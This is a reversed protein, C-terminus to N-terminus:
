RQEVFTEHTVQKGDLYFTTAGMLDTRFTKVRANQLRELVEPKPHGFPSRFGVSIVAYNPSTAQLLEATTSTASGHHGVKLLDVRPVGAEVLSREIKREADGALLVTDSGYSVLMVLSDNNRPREALQWDAPPALIEFQASGFLFKEGLARHIPRVNLENAEALTSRIAD